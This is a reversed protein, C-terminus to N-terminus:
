AHVVEPHWAGDSPRWFVRRTPQVRLDVEDVAEIALAILVFTDPPSADTPAGPAEFPTDAPAGPAGGCVQKRTDVSTADWVAQRAAADTVLRARGALRFQTWRGGVFWCLEARADAAIEGVKASRLDASFVLEPHVGSADLSRVVVYRARPHGDADVTSLAAFRDPPPAEALVSQLADIWTM